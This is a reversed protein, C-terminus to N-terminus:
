SLGHGRQGGQSRRHNAPGYGPKVTQLFYMKLHALNKNINYTEFLSYLVKRPTVFNSPCLCIQPVSGLISGSKDVVISIAVDLCNLRFM